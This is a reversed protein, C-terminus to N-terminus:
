LKEDKKTIKNPALGLTSHVKNNFGNTIKQLADVCKYTVHLDLYRHIIIKISKIAREVHAAKIKSETSYHIMNFKKIINEQFIKNYFEKGIDSFLHIFNTKARSLIRLCAETM